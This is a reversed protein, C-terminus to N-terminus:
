NLGVDRLQRNQLSHYILNEINFETLSLLLVITNWYHLPNITILSKSYYSITSFHLKSLIKMSSISCFLAFYAVMDCYLLIIVTGEMKALPGQLIREFKVTIVTILTWLYIWIKPLKSLSTFYTITVHLIHLVKGM